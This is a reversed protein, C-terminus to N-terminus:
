KVTTTHMEFWKALEEMTIKDVVLLTIRELETQTTQVLWSNLRLFLVASGIGTRKNGDVFPHNMVLSSMMAAAKTFIDPYLDQGGFTAQPRAIAAEMLGVDRVGHSGGTESVIRAHLFLVEQPTLYRTM